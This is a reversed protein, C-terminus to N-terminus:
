HAKSVVIIVGDALIILLFDLLILKFIALMFLLRWVRLLRSLLPVIILAEKIM